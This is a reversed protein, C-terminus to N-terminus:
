FVTTGVSYHLSASLTVIDVVSILEEARHARDAIVPLGLEGCQSIFTRLELAQWTEIESLHNLVLGLRDDSFDTERTSLGTLRELMERRGAVWERVPLKRHDGQTLIHVLWIVTTWGWSLGKQAWHRPIHRDVIGALDIQKMMGLLLGIDDVRETVVTVENTM